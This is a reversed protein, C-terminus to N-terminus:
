NSDVVQIQHDRHYLRIFGLNTTERYNHKDTNLSKASIDKGMDRAKEDEM